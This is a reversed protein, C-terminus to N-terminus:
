MNYLSQILTVKGDSPAPNPLNPLSREQVIPARREEDMGEDERLFEEGESEDRSRFRYADYYICVQRKKRSSPKEEKESGDGEDDSFLGEADSDAEANEDTFQPTAAKQLKLFGPDTTDPLDDDDDLIRRMKRAPTGDSAM